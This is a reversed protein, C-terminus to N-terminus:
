ALDQSMNDGPSTAVGDHGGVGSADIISAKEAQDM